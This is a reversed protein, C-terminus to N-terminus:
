AIRARFKEPSFQSLCSSLSFSCFLSCPSEIWSGLQVASILHSRGLGPGTEKALPFCLDIILYCCRSFRTCGVQVSRCDSLFLTRISPHCCLRSPELSCDPFLLFSSSLLFLFFFSLFPKVSVPRRMSPSPRTTRSYTGLLGVLRGTVVSEPARISNRNKALQGVLRTWVSRLRPM